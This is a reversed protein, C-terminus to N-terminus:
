KSVRCGTKRNIWVAEDAIKMLPMDSKSDSYSRVIHPKINNKEAWTNLATVKNNGWCLFKYKWPYKKDMESCMVADFNIDHVLPKLLYDPSASILVVINGADREAAVREAVWGFRNLKHQKIFGPAFNDRMDSTQFCRVVERWWIGPHNFIRGIGAILMLPIFFWPRVSNRFCYKAFEVNADGASLTGDFDFVVVNVKKARSTKNAKKQM